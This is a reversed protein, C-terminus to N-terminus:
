TRRPVQAHHSYYQARQKLRLQMKPRRLDLYRYKLRLDENAVTEGQIQITLPESRNLIELTDVKIEIGGTEINPNKLSEERSIVSGTASLVFEDRVGEAINFAESQEPRIALQVVGTHDRLDIFILGGHDRRSNVWGKVTIVEGVKSVSDAAFTRM